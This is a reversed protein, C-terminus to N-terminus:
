RSATSSPTGRPPSPSRPATTPSRRARSTSPATARSLSSRARPPGVVTASEVGQVTPRPTSRAPRYPAEAGVATCTHTWTGPIEGQFSSEVVLLPRGAALESKPHDLFSLVTGPAPDVANTRFSVVKASSREAELRRRALAAGDGEDARYRGRDDGQPTSEGKDSEYVFAGPAYDFRELRGEVGAGGAASAM